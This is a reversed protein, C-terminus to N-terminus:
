EDEKPKIVVYRNPEEGESETVVKKNDQLNTHIIRREYSNMPDLNVAVKSIAVQKAVKKAIRILKQEKAQKYEGVDLNFKFYEGIENYINQKIIATLSQLTRGNKGILIPNNDSIITILLNNDRKKVELSCTLGMNTVIEKVFEKIYDIVDQKTIVEIEAKKNFLGSKVELEKIYLNDKTEELQTMANKIAEDVTKGSFKNKILM